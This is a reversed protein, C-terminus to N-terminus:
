ASVWLADIFLEGPEQVCIVRGEVELLHFVVITAVIWVLVTLSIGGILGSSRRQM